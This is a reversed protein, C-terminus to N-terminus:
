TDVTVLPSPVNVNSIEEDGVPNVHLLNLDFPAGGLFHHSIEHSFGHLFTM